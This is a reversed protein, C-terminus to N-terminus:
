YITLLQHNPALFTGAIQAASVRSQCPGPVKVNVVIPLQGDHRDWRYQHGAIIQPLEAPLDLPVGLDENPVNRTPQDRHDVFYVGSTKKGPNCVCVTKGRDRGRL